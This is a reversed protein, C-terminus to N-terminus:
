IIEMHDNNNIEMLSVMEKQQNTMPTFEIEDDNESIRDSSRRSDNAAAIASQKRQDFLSTSLRKQKKVSIIALAGILFCFMELRFKKQQIKLKLLKFNLIKRLFSSNQLHFCTGSYFLFNSVLIQGILRFRYLIICYQLSSTIYRVMAFEEDFETYKCSRLEIRGFSADEDDMSETSSSSSSSSSSTEEALTCEFKEWRGTAKCSEYTKQESFTCRECKGLPKCQDDDSSSPSSSDIAFDHAATKPSIKPEEEEDDDELLRQYQQQQQKRRERINNQEQQHINYEFKNNKNMTFITDADSSANITPIITLLFLLGVMQVIVLTTILCSGFMRERHSRSRQRRHRDNCCSNWQRSPTVRGSFSDEESSKHQNTRPRKM